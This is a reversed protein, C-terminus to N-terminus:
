DLLLELVPFYVLGAEYHYRGVSRYRGSRSDTRQKITQEDTLHNFKDYQKLNNSMIITM